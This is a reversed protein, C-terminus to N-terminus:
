FVKVSSSKFILYIKGGVQLAMEKFSQETIFATFKVGTNLEVRVQAGTIEIKTIRGSLCNRASSSLPEKSLIIDKPDISIHAKGCLKSVVSIKLSSSLLAWRLGDQRILECSFLNLPSSKTAQGNILSIVEQTLRYSQCLNHTTFIVTTQHNKSIKKIFEEITRINERDVNATPEDLFLVEPEYILARAIAVRQAEGGSLDKARRGEFNTLGVEELIRRVKEKEDRRSRMKLGLFVNEFVTRDFLFPDQAVYGMKRRAELSSTNVEQGKFFIRGSTPPQLLDLIDLLTTKGAGNPGFLCYTKGKEFELHAIDLVPRNGYYKTLNEVKIVFNM